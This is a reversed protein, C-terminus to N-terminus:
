LSTVRHHICHLSANAVHCSGSTTNSKFKPPFILLYSECLQLLRNHIFINIGTNNATSKELISLGYQSTSAQNTLPVIKLTQRRRESPRVNPQLKYETKSIDHENSSTKEAGLM